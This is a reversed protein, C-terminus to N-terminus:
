RAPTAFCIYNVGTADSLAWRGGLVSYEIGALEVMEADARALMAALEEPAVFKHWEHTGVPVMGLVHEAAGIAMAYSRPTRNITSLAMAGGPAVLRRLVRLFQACTLGSAVM